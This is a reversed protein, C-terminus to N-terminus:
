QKHQDSYIMMM